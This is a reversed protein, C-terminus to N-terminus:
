SKVFIENCKTYHGSSDRLLGYGARNVSGKITKDFVLILQFGLNHLYDQCSNDDTGKRAPLCAVADIVPETLLIVQAINCTPMADAKAKVNEKSLGQQKVDLTVLIVEAMSKLLWVEMFFEAKYEPKKFTPLPKFMPRGYARLSPLFRCLGGMTLMIISMPQSESAVTVRKGNIEQM